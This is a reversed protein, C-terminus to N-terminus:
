IDNAAIIRFDVLDSAADLRKRHPVDIDHPIYEISIYVLLEVSVTIAISVSVTVSSVAAIASVTM